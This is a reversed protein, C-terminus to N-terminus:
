SWAHTHNRVPILPFSGPSPSLNTDTSPNKEGEFGEGIQNMRSLKNWNSNEDWSEDFVEAGAFSSNRVFFDGCRLMEFLCIAREAKGPRSLLTFFQNFM